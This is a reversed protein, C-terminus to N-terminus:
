IGTMNLTSAILSRVSAFLSKYNPALKVLQYRVLALLQHRAQGTFPVFERAMVDASSGYGDIAADM